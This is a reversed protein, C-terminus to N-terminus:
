FLAKLKFRWDPNLRKNLVVIGRDGTNQVQPQANYSLTSPPRVADVSACGSLLVLAACLAPLLMEKM